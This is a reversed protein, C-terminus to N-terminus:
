SVQAVHLTSITIVTPLITYCGSRKWWGLGHMLDNPKTMLQCYASSQFMQCWLENAM